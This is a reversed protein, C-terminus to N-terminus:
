GAQNAIWHKIRHLALPGTALVNWSKVTKEWLKEEFDLLSPHSLAPSELFLSNRFNIIFDLVAVTQLMRVGRRVPFDERTLFYIFKQRAEQGSLVLDRNDDTTLLYFM